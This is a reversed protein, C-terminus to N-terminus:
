HAHEMNYVLFNKLSKLYYKVGLPIETPERLLFRVNSLIWRPNFYLSRYALRRASELEEPSMHETRLISSHQFLSRWDLEEPIYGREVAMEYLETGPYPVTINFQASTPLVRGVFDITERVTDWSEGPLGFMFSLYTKIGAAKAARVASATQAVTAGKKARRLIEDSGSEAGFSIGRCGARRMLRLLEDDVHNVRTNCYWRINIKQERMGECLEVVRARDFTFTEDFFSVTRIHHHEKLYQLEEIISQASRAKWTTRRVTCYICSYPCGKSTYMITFPSGHRTNIYYTSLSPLLEYAPMPLGDYEINAHPTPNIIPQGQELLAIGKVERLERGSAIAGVVDRVVVEYDGVIYVDLEPSERLVREVFPKLTWCMGVTLVEPSVQKAIRAVEMDSDFTTPTFRFILVDPRFAALHERLQAHSMNLGNADVVVVEHADKLQAAIQILSYPPVLSGRDTIECRDERIVPIGRVRPPNVLAVKM